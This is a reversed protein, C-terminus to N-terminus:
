LNEPNFRVTAAKKVTYGDTLKNGKKRNCKGCLPQINEISHLGGKSLPFIHDQELKEPKKHCIACEFNNKKCMETWQEKTIGNGKAKWERRRHQEEIAKFKGKDSHKYKQHYKLVKDEQMPDILVAYNNPKISSYSQYLSRLTDSGFLLPSRRALANRIRSFINTM